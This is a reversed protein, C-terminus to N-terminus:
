GASARLAEPAALSAAARASAMGADLLMGHSGVWDGAIFLGDVGLLESRPRGRLGLSSADAAANSAVMQPLMRTHVAHDRWGPQLADVMAELEAEAGDATGEGLYKMACVLGGGDPALKASASHVSVYTPADFGLALVSRPEPLRDLAVDLCAVRIPRLTEAWRAPGEVAHDLLRDLTRPSTAVVV